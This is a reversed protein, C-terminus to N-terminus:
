RKLAEELESITREYKEELRDDEKNKYYKYIEKLDNMYRQVLDKYQGDTMGM